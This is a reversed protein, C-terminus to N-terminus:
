LGPHPAPEVGIERMCEVYRRYSRRAEGHRGAASLSEVLALHSEEDYPDRALLRLSYRVSPRGAAEVAPVLARLVDLYVARVEERLPTTWDEYRNEELFDGGYAAEAEELLGLAHSPGEAAVARLAREAKELFGELDVSVNALVLRVGDRTSAVYHDPDFRHEPDLVARLVSLGVSLRNATVRPDEGPWFAELLVDRPVVSGRRSVLFGLLDRAKRSQWEGVPVARGDRLVAFCGLTAIVLAKPRRAALSLLLGAASGNPRVGLARLAEEARHAEDESSRLRALALEAKASGIADGIESWLAAAEELSALEAEPEVASLVRLALAEALLPPAGRRTAEALVSEAASRARARDGHRLGIWGRALLALVPTFENAAEVASEVLREAEDPDEDVLVRALGALAGIRADPVGSREAAALAREFSGRALWLEGQEAQITGLGVLSYSVWASGTREYAAIAARLDAAAEDLRGLGLLALGRLARNAAQFVSFGIRDALELARTAETRAEAYRGQELRLETLRSRASVTSLAHGIRDAIELAREFRAEAEGLDGDVLALYGVVAHAESLMTTEDSGVAAFVREAYSRAEALRGLWMLEFAIFADVMPDDFGTAESRQLITRAEELEGLNQLALAVHFGVEGPPAEVGSLWHRAQEYDGLIIFSHAVTLAARERRFEPPLLPVVRVVSAVAGREILALGHDDLLRAIGPTDEATALADLARVLLGQEEFWGAALRQLERAEADPLPWHERAFERVLAHLGYSEEAGGPAQALGRRALSELVEDAHVLGIAECLGPTIQDFEAVVRVVRRAEASTHDFVEEALYSFLPGRRGLLARAAELRRGPDVAALASAALQVAAPWGETAEHVPAALEETGPEVLRSLLEAVEGEGFTLRAPDVDMVQGRGRLRSVAFPLEARSSLVLHLQPPAYRALGELLRVGPRDELEHVDDVVLVVDDELLPELAEALAAALSDAASLESGGGASMPVDALAPLQEQLAATLGRYLVVPAADRRDVTYWAWGNDVACAALHTTKGFGAGAVVSTLRVNAAGKLLQELAPRRVYWPPLAPAVRKTKPTRPGEPSLVRQEPAHLESTM